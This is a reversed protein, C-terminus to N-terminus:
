NVSSKIVLGSDDSRFLRPNQIHAEQPTDLTRQKVSPISNTFFFKAKLPASSSYPELCNNYIQIPVRGHFQM